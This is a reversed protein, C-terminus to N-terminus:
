RLMGQAPSLGIDSPVGRTDQGQGWVPEWRQAVGLQATIEGLGVGPTSFLLLLRSECNGGVWLAADGETGGRCPCVPSAASGASM